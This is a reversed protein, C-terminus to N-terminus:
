FEIPHMDTEGRHIDRWQPPRMVRRANEPSLIRSNINNLLSDAFNDRHIIYYKYLYYLIVLVIIVTAITVYCM